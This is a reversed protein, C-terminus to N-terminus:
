TCAKTTQRLVLVERLQSFDAVPRVLIFAQLDNTPPITRSVVGIVIGPPYLGCQGAVRYGSTVVLDDGPVVTSIDVLEMSMDDEGEGQLLGTAGSSALRAGVFSERDIILRVVAFDATVSIVHGVLLAQGQETPPGVVVPDDVEVGSSTGVDIDITWEFNSPSTGVVHATVPDSEQLTNKLGLLQTLAAIEADKAAGALVQARLTAVEMTLRQNDQELSPLHALGIFFDAIPETVRTVTKQMPGLLELGARGLGALPGSTGQRYDLTITALALSVFVVLLLRNSRPKPRVAV